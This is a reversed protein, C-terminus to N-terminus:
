QESSLSSSLAVAATYKMCKEKEESSEQEATEVEAKEKM